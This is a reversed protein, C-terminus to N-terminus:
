RRSRPPSIKSPSGVPRPPWPSPLTSPQGPAPAQESRHRRGPHRRDPVPRTAPRPVPRPHFRHRRLRAHHHVTRGNRGTQHRDRRLTGAGPRVAARRHQPHDGRVAARARRQHVGKVDFARLAAQLHDPRLSTDRARGGAPTSRQGSGPAPTGQCRVRDEAAARGAPVPDSGRHHRVGPGDPRRQRVAPQPQVRGSLGLLRLRVRQATAGRPGARLVPLVHLDV